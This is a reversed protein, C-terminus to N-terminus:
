RSAPTLDLLCNVYYFGRDLIMKQWHRSNRVRSFLSRKLRKWSFYSKYKVIEPTGALTFADVEKDGLLEAVTRFDFRALAGRISDVNKLDLGHRALLEPPSGAAIFGAPITAANHAKKIDRDISMATYAGVGFSKRDIGDGIGLASFLAPVSRDLFMHPASELQM